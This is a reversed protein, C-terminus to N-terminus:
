YEKKNEAFKPLEQGHVGITDNSFVKINHENSQLRTTEKIKRITPYEYGEPIFFLNNLERELMRKERSIHDYNLKSHLQDLMDQKRKTKLERLSSIQPSAVYSNSPIKSLPKIEDPPNLGLSKRHDVTHKKDLEIKTKLIPNEM